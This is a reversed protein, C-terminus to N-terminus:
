HMNDGSIVDQVATKAKDNVSKIADHITNEGTEGVNSLTLRGAPLGKTPDDSDLLTEGGIADKVSQAVDYLMGASVATRDGSKVAGGVLNGIQGGRMDIGSNSLAPGLNGVTLGDKNLVVNEATTTDGLTVSDATLNKNLALKVKTPDTADKTATINSDGEVTQLATAAKALKAKADNGLSLKYNTTNGVPAEKDVKIDAQNESTVSATTDAKNDIATKLNKIADDVTNEGTGGINTMSLHGDNGLAANGGLKTKVDGAFNNMYNNTAYLQSGNIVDTSTASIVGAAVNQIQREKGASGVSVTGNAANPLGAATYSGNLTYAGTHAASTASGAGLAVSNAQAANANAGIAVTNAGGVAARTGFVLSDDAGAAVNINNGIAYTRAGAVTNKDGIALAQEATAHSEAGMVIARRGTATSKDSNNSNDSNYNNAIVISQAGSASSYAGITIAKENGTKAYTGIAVGDHGNESTAYSGMAITSTGMSKAEFGIAVSQKGDFKDVKGSESNKGISISNETHAKATNGMAITNAGEVAASTGFALSDDTGAAANINNGLAYTRASAITNTDGISVSNDGSVNSQVGLIQSRTGSATSNQGQIDNGIVTSQRGTAQSYAGIALAKYTTAKSKSGIAVADWPAVASDAAQTSAQVGMAITDYRNAVSEYGISISKNGIDTVGPVLDGDGSVSRAGISIAGETKSNATNGMAIADNGSAKATNGIAVTRSVELKDTATGSGADTGMAINDSGKLYQGASKGISTNRNGGQAYRGSETGILVSDDNSKATANDAGALSGISIGHTSQSFSGDLNRGAHAGISLQQSGNAHSHYGLATAEEGLAENRTGVATGNKGSALALQGVATAFDNTAKAGKGVATTSEHTAKAENGVATAYAGSANTEAGLATTYAHLAKAKGGIATAYEGNFNTVAPDGAQAQYGLATSYGTKATTASGIATAHKASAGANVGITVADVQKNADSLSTGWGMRISNTGGNGNVGRDGVGIIGSNVDLRGGLTLNKAGNDQDNVEAAETTAGAGGYFLTRNTQTERNDVTSGGVAVCPRASGAANYYSPTIGTQPAYTGPVKLEVTGPTTNVDLITGVGVNQIASDNIAVCNGAQRDNVYIGPYAVASTSTLALGISIALASAAFGATGKAVRGVVTRESGKGHASAFEPVATFVGLAKNFISKYIHNM